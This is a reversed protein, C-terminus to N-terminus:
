QPLSNFSCPKGKTLPKEESRLFLAMTLAELLATFLSFFALFKICAYVKKMRNMMEPALANHADDFLGQSDASWVIEEVCTYDDNMFYTLYGDDRLRM